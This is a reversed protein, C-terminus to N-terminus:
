PIEPPSVDRQRSILENQYGIGIPSFEVPILHIPVPPSPSSASLSGDAKQFLPRLIMLLLPTPPEARHRRKENDMFSVQSNAIFDPIGLGFRRPVLREVLILNYSSRGIFAWNSVLGKSIFPTM